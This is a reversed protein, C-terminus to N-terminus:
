VPDSALALTLGPITDFGRGATEIREILHSGTSPVPLDVSLLTM